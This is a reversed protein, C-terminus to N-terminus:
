PVPDQSDLPVRDRCRWLRSATLALGKRLGYKQVAETSYRSCTPQFRCRVHGALQPSLFGQYAHVARVYGGAFFQQGPARGSDVGIAAFGVALLALYTGPHRLCKRLSSM